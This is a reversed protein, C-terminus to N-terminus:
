NNRRQEHNLREKGDCFGIDHAFTAIKLIELQTNDLNYEKSIDIVKNLFEKTHELNHYFLYYKKENKNYITTIYEEVIKVIDIM